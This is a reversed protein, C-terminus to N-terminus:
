IIYCDEEQARIFGTQINYYDHFSDISVLGVQREDGHCYDWFFLKCLKRPTSIVYKRFDARLLLSAEQRSKFDSAHIVDHQWKEWIEISDDNIQIFIDQYLDPSDILKFEKLVDYNAHRWWEQFIKEGRSMDQIKILREYNDHVMKLFSQETFTTQSKLIECAVKLHGAGYIFRSFFRNKEDCLRLITLRGKANAAHRNTRGSSQILSDIPAMDRIVWAFDLDVGAEIIQTSILIIPSKNELKKRIRDIAATRHIPLLNTSLYFSEGKWSSPLTKYLELSSHITNCIIAVSPAKEIEGFYTEWFQDIPLLDAFYEGHIRDLKLFTKSPHPALEITEAKPFILPQTATMMIIYCHYIEAMNKLVNRILPWYELPVNQIEDLIIISGAIRHFKKMARNENCILSHFLQFFTTVVIESDWSEILMLAQDLSLDSRKNKESYYQISALHHHKILIASCDSQYEPNTQLIEEIIKYNQDIISTFPLAYIIRPCFGKEKHIRQRLKFTFNLVALTKASGTPATLTFLHQALNIQEAQKSLHSYIEERMTKLTERTTPFTKQVKYRTICESPLNFRFKTNQLQAADRKDNEILCSFLLYCKQHFDEALGGRQWDQYLSWSQFLTEYFPSKYIAIQELFLTLFKHEEIPQMDKEITERNSTIDVVQKTFLTDLRRKWKPDISFKRDPDQYSLIMLLLNSLQEIDGHHQYVCALCILMYKHIRDVSIEQSVLFCGWLASLLSHNKLDSTPTGTRLYNQFFTTYKGFDHSIGIIRSLTKLHCAWEITNSLENLSHLMGNSVDALHEVLRKQSHVSGKEDIELHSYFVM